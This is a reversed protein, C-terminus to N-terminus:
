IEDEIEAPVYITEPALEEPKLNDWDAPAKMTYRLLEAWTAERLSPPLAMIRSKQIIASPIRKNPTRKLQLSADVLEMVPSLVRPEKKDKQGYIFRDHSTIVLMQCKRKLGALTTRLDDKIMGWLLMSQNNAMARNKEFFDRSLWQCWQTGTDVVITGWQEPSAITKELIRKLGEESHYSSCDERNFDFLGGIKYLRAGEETDLVLVPRYPSTIGFLTKGVGPGGWVLVATLLSKGVVKAETTVGEIPKLDKPCDDVIIQDVM